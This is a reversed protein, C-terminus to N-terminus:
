RDIEIYSEEKQEFDWYQHSVCIGQVAADQLAATITQFWPITHTLRYQLISQDVVAAAQRCLIM